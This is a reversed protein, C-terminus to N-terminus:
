WFKLFDNTIITPNPMPNVISKESVMSDGNDNVKKYFWTIWIHTDRLNCGSSVIKTM